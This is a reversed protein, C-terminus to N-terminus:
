SPAWAIEGCGFVVALDLWSVCSRFSEGREHRSWAFTNLLLLGGDLHASEIGVVILREGELHGELVDLLDLQHDSHDVVVSDATGVGYALNHEPAARGRAGFQAVPHIHQGTRAPWDGLPM